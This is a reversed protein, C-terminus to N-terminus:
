LLTVNSPARLYTHSTTNQKIRIRHTTLGIIIGETDRGRIQFRVSDGISPQRATSTDTTNIRHRLSAVRITLAALETELEHLETELPQRLLPRRDM